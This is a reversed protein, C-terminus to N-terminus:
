TMNCNSSTASNAPLTPKNTINATMMYKECLTLQYLPCSEISSYHVYSIIYSPQPQTTAVRKQTLTNNRTNRPLTSIHLMKNIVEPSM